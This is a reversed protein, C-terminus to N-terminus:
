GRWILKTPYICSGDSKVLFVPKGQGELNPQNVESCPPAASLVQPCVPEHHPSSEPGYYIRYASEGDITKAFGDGYFQALPYESLSTYRHNLKRDGPRSPDAYMHPGGTESAAGPPAYKTLRPQPTFPVPPPFDVYSPVYFVYREVETGIITWTAHDNVDIKWLLGDGLPPSHADGGGYSGHLSADSASHKRSIRGNVHGHTPMAFPIASPTPVGGYTSGVTSATSGTRKRNRVPGPGGGVGGNVNVNDDWAHPPPLGHHAQQWTHYPHSNVPSNTLSSSMSTKREFYESGGPISGSPSFYPSAPVSPGAPPLTMGVTSAPTMPLLVGYASGAPSPPVSGRAPSASLWVRRKKGSATGDTWPSSYYVGSDGNSTLWTGPNSVDQGWVPLGPTDYREFAVKHLQLVPEAPLEGAACKSTDNDHVRGETGVVTSQGEVRRVIYVPSLAGTSACQLRVANNYCIVPAVDQMQGVIADPPPLFQRGDTCGEMRTPVYPIGSRAPDVLWIHFPDWVNSDVCFEVPADHSSLPKDDTGRWRDLSKSIALFRTTTNQSRIRNYLSVTTGTTLCLESNRTNQRRKGPKSIIKIEKSNWTGLEIDAINDSGDPRKGLTPQARLTVQARVERSKDKDADTIHLNKGAARGVFPDEGFMFANGVGEDFVRGQSTTWQAIADPQAGENSLRINIIPPQRQAGNPPDWWRAGLLTVVPPPCLFRKENGYSKQGVRPTHIIVHREGFALRNPAACFRSLEDSVRDLYTKSHLSLVRMGHALEPESRSKPARITGGLPRQPGVNVSPPPLARHSLDLTYGNTASRSTSPVGHDFGLASGTGAGYYHSSSNLMNGDMSGGLGYSSSSTSASNLTPARSVDQQQPWIPQMHQALHPQPQQGFHKLDFDNPYPNLNPDGGYMMGPGHYSSALMSQSMHNPTYLAPNYISRASESDKTLAPSSNNSDAPSINPYPLHGYENTLLHNANPLWNAHTDLNLQPRSAMDMSPFPTASHSAHATHGGADEYPDPLGDILGLAGPQQQPLSLYDHELHDESWGNSADYSEPRTMNGHPDSM